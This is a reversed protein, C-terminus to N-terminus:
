ATRSVFEHTPNAGVFDPPAVGDCCAPKRRSSSRKVARLHAAPVVRLKKRVQRWLTWVHKDRNRVPLSLTVHGGKGNPVKNALRPLRESLRLARRGIALAAATHISLGYRSAYAVQGITSTYAPNVEEIQVGFRYSRSKIAELVISYTFSSLMRSFKPSTERLEAKKKQFDLKELVIPKQATVALSVIEKVADQILAKAQKHSKGYTTCRIVKSYLPNGFRDTEVVALHDANIDVGIVGCEKRTITVPAVYTTSVFIQFGREDQKFRYSIASADGNAQTHQQITAVIVDHGYAFRLGPLLLYKADGRKLADPLRLRLTISGDEAVTATCSQNGSAEDKSGVLFFSCSRAKRWEQQWQEFSSYHNEQLHFQARFLRNSGFCLRVKGSAEDAQLRDHKKKLNFARRKKQHLEKAKSKKGELKQIKADLSKIRDELARMHLPRLKKISDIKGELQMRISNFHRATIKFRKIYLSKLENVKKGRRMDAFLLREVHGTLEAYAKLTSEQETDLRLRTQYTFTKSTAHQM